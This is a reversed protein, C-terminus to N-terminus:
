LDPDNEPTIPLPTTTPAALHMWQLVEQHLSHVSEQIASIQASTHQRHNDFATEIEARLTAIEANGSSTPHPDTNPPLARKKSPPSTTLQDPTPAPPNHSTQLQQKLLRNEAQLRENDARLLTITNRLQQMEQRMQRMEDQWTSPPPPPPPIPPTPLLAARVQGQAAQSYTLGPTTFTTTTRDPGTGPTTPPYTPYSKRYPAALSSANLADRQM